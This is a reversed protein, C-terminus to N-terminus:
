GLPECFLGLQLMADTMAAPEPPPPLAQGSPTSPDAIVTEGWTLAEVIAASPESIAPDDVLMGREAVAQMTDLNPGAGPASSAGEFAEWEACFEAAPDTTTPTPRPRSTSTVATATDDSGGSCAALVLLVGLAATTIIGRM